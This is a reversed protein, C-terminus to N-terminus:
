TLWQSRCSGCRFSLRDWQELAAVCWYRLLHTVTFKRAKDEYDTEKAVSQVEEPTLISQLIFPITISKKM